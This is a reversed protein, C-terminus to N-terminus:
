LAHYWSRFPTPVCLNELQRAFSHPRSRLKGELPHLTLSLDRPREGLEPHDAIRAERILHAPLGFHTLLHQGMEFRSLVDAGAWHFLGHLNRRECLEICVEATSEASCPQRLEDSFLTASQGSAWTAFLREHLSRRGGPSNGTQIPIRLITVLDGGANLVAEEADRKQEGYRNLPRPHDSTIYAGRQGDFVMDTSLHVCFASLHHALQALREPLEVNLRHANDPDADVDAPNSLAACHVIAEPFHELVVHTFNELYRLDFPLPTLNASPSIPRSNFQALVHHGRRLAEAAVHSGVLGSAGTVLIKMFPISHPPLSSPCTKIAKAPYDHILGVWNHDALAYRRMLM